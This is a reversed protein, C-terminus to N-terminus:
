LAVQQEGLRNDLYELRTRGISSDGFRIFQIAVHNELLWDHGNSKLRKILNVVGQITEVLRPDIVEETSVNPWNWDGDTLVYLSLPKPRQSHHHQFGLLDHVKKKLVKYLATSIDPTGDYTVKEAFKRLATASKQFEKPPASGGTMYLDVGDDNGEKAMKSLVWLLRSVKDWHPRM